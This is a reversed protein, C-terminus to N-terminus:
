RKMIVTYLPGKVKKIYFLSLLLYIVSGIIIQTLLTILSVKMYIGIGRIILCMIAGAILFFYSDKLYNLVKLNNRVAITQYLAVTFEAMITGIAAGTAGYIPILFFSIVGNVIAGFVVSGVYLKDKNSPIIYQTRIVNAWAIFIVTISLLAMLNGSQVFEKGFFVPAFVQSVGAIGFAILSSLLVTFQMSMTIYNSFKHVNGKSLMNSMRPLMVTGLATIFSMPVMLVKQANEYFGVEAMSSLQGIMIKNMITYVSISVVPIFLLLNPKIHKVIGTVRIKHFTIFNKLFPWNLLQTLFISLATIGAYVWLDSEAKVFAFISVTSLLKVIANRIVTLKFREIGFFFWSIDFISSCLYILWIFELTSDMRNSLMIYIFYVGIVIFSFFLQMWYIEFFTKSLIFKNDRVAAITRNGYNNLGLMAVLMFYNAISFTYSYIGLNEAGLVRSIYPVTVLPLIINLVQYLLSYIYNIKLKNM